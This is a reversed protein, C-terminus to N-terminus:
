LNTTERVIYKCVNGKRKERRGKTKKGNSISKEM